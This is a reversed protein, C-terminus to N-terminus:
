HCCSGGKKNMRKENSKTQKSFEQRCNPSCFWQGSKEDVLGKGKSEKMGCVPDTKRFLGFVM